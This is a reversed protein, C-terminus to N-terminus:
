KLSANVGRIILMVEKIVTDLPQSADVIYFRHHNKCIAHYKERADKLSGYSVEQKRALLVLPDADLFFVLDPQPMADSALKALWGPGGYRYRKPDVLLDVHYRDFIVFGVKSAVCLVRWWGLWWNLWLWALKVSSAIQGRPIQGHPDDATALTAPAGELGFVRPRWHGLTVEKGRKRLEISIESIVASKGSGDCGLFSIFM